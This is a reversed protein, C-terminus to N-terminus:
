EHARIVMRETAQRTRWIEIDLRAAELEWKLTEEQQVAERLGKLLAVYEPDALAEREQANAAEVGM